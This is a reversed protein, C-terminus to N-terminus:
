LFCCYAVFWLNSPCNPPQLTWTLAEFKRGHPSYWSSMMLPASGVKLLLVLLVTVNPCLIQCTPYTQLTHSAFSAAGETAWGPFYCIKMLTLRKYPGVVDVLLVLIVARSFRLFSGSTKDIDNLIFLLM